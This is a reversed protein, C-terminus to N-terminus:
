DKKVCRVSFGFSRYTDAMLLSSSYYSLMIYTSVKKTSTSSSWWYAQLTINKFDGFEDRFGSPIASFGTSNSGNCNMYWLSDSKIKHGAEDGLLNQIKKFDIEKPIRWGFPALGREDSVAYWNYLKGYTENLSSDNNYYCWAPIHNKGANLWQQKTKAHFITDGNRFKSVALNKDDFYELVVSNTNKQPIAKNSFFCISILFLLIRINVIILAKLKWDNCISGM